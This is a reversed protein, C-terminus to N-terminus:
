ADDGRSRVPVATRLGLAHIAGGLLPALADHVLRHQDLRTLGAFRDSEIEVRFHGGGSTAGAHGVHRDSDDRIDLRTPAFRETLIREIEDRVASV